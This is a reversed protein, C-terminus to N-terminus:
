LKLLHMRTDSLYEIQYSVTTGDMIMELEDFGILRWSGLTERVIDYKMLFTFVGNITKSEKEVVETKTYELTGNELFRYIEGVGAVEDTKLLYKNNVFSPDVERGGRIVLDRNIWLSSIVSSSIGKDYNLLVDVYSVSEIEGNQYIVIKQPNESENYYIWEGERQYHLFSGVARKLGNPYYYIWEGVPLLLTDQYDFAEYTVADYTTIVYGMNRTSREVLGQRSRYGAPAYSDKATDPKEYYDTYLFTTDDYRFYEIFKSGNEYCRQWFVTRGEYIEHREVKVGSVAIQGCHYLGITDSESLQCFVNTSIFCAAIILLSCKIKVMIVMMSYRPQQM